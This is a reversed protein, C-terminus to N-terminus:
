KLNRFLENMIMEDLDRRGDQKVRFFFQGDDKKIESFNSFDYSNTGYCLCMWKNNPKKNISCARGETFPIKLLSVMFSMAMDEMHSHNWLQKNRDIKSVVDHSIIFSTGGWLWSVLDNDMKVGIGAFVNEDPLTQVYKLLEKKHVYTSANVRAVYDFDVNKLAWEFALLTKRGVNYLDTDVPLYIIKDTNEKDSQSSYFITKVGKVDVSDWTARSTEIMKSYPEFDSSLVLILVKKLRDVQYETESIM